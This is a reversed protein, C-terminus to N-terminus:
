QENLQESSNQNAVSNDPTIESKKGFMLKIKSWYTKVVVLAGVLFGLLIQIIFSGSGPDLYAETKLMPTLAVSFFLIFATM